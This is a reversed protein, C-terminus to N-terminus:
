LKIEIPHNLKKAEEECYTKFEAETKIGGPEREWAAGFYYQIDSLGSKFVVLENLEDETLKEVQESSYFVVTGLQDGALSQLGYLAIYQWKGDTESKILVCEACKILGTCFQIEADNPKISISNKTLRSGAQITMDSKMDVKKDSYDWGWFKLEVGAQLNAKSDVACFMSDTNEIRVAKEEVYAGVAGMGLSNGVKFVDMGWWQMEHYSSSSDQGVHQLIMDATKKGFIDIANRNDLYIRYGVKDSEWGPGEYRMYDDHAVHGAPVHLEKVKEFASGGVYKGDEFKGNNRVSIEAQARKPFAQRTQKGTIISIEKAASAELDVNILLKQDTYDFPLQKGADILIIPEGTKLGIKKLEIEVIEDVRNLDAPNTLTIKIDKEASCFLLFLSLTVPLYTKM